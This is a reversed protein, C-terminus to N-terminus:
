TGGAPAASAIMSAISFSILSMTVMVSPIGWLSWILTIFAKFLWLLLLIIPPFQGPIILSPHLIPIMGPCIKLCPFIPSDSLSLKDSFSLHAFPQSRYTDNRPRTRERVLSDLSSRKSSNKQLPPLGIHHSFAPSSLSRPSM